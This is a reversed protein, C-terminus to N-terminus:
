KEKGEKQIASWVVERHISLGPDAEFGLRVKDHRTDVVTITVLKDGIIIKENKRRTLVLM